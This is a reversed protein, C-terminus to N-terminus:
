GTGTRAPTEDAIAALVHARAGAYDAKGNPARFMRPVAFLRKPTKYGALSDRVHRRMQDESFVAGPRLEAVATVAQGWTEDPIGVVLADVVDPHLKLVEEVEEPFVKEGATNICGSGRGLLTITGDAGVTCFDGPIAYRVGDITRFVAETKAPDKYYGEPIPGARATMGVEGSGPAVERGDPDFVRVQDGIEFRATEIAGDATMISLGFGVAESSGFSDLLSAQPLHRLLGQKVPLSWMTGSSIIAAVKALDYQGPAADLAQLMPRAFADGVIVIQEVAHREVAQWLEQPDFRPSPLTVVTGGGVLASLGTLLGTGHMLPCAPLNVPGSGAARLIRLHDELDVPIEPTVAPNLLARRLADQRWMVGKPMGTTGGTYIFFLDDPSRAIRLPAGDGGTALDEFRGACAPPEAAAGDEVMLWRRVQPLAAAIQTVVPAFERGFVVTEADSNDLIYRVEDATYRYNVNVHVQRAKFAAVLGELYAPHNRLYFAIKAGSQAGDAALARALNNSRATLEAWSTSRDGHVLAPQGPAVTEAVRDFLDGYNWRFEAADAAM